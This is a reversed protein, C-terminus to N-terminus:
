PPKFRIHAQREAEAGLAARQVEPGCLLADGIREGVRGDLADGQDARRRPEALTIPKATAFSM